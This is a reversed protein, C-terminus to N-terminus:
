AYSGGNKSSHGLDQEMFDKLSVIKKVAVGDLDDLKVTVLIRADNADLGFLTVHDSSRDVIGLPEKLGKVADPIAALVRVKRDAFFAGHLMPLLTIQIAVVIGLVWSLPDDAAPLRTALWGVSITTQFLATALLIVAVKHGALAREILSHASRGQEQLLFGGTGVVWLITLLACLGLIALMLLEGAMFLAGSVAGKLWVAGCHLALLLPTLPLLIILSTLIFRFGAFVYGEYALAFRPDTGLSFARARLALYGSLYVVTTVTALLAGAHKLFGTIEM